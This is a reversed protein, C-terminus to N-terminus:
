YNSAKSIDALPSIKENESLEAVTNEQLYSYILNHAKVTNLQSRFRRELFEYLRTLRIVDSCVCEFRSDIDPLVYLTLNLASNPMRNAALIFFGDNYSTYYSGCLNSTFNKPLTIDSLKKPLSQPNFIEWITEENISQQYLLILFRGINNINSLNSSRGILEDISVGFYDAIDAIKDLSPMNRSWRSILGPSLFLDNELKSISVKNKKCLNRINDILLSNDM